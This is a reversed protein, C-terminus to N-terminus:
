QLLEDARALMWRPINIGLAKATRLNVVFEFKSAQEIPLDAPKAGNLIKFVYNAARQSLEGWDTSYSMLVGAEAFRRGDAIAPLRYKAVLGAIRDENVSALPFQNIAVADARLQAIREFAPALDNVQTVEVLHVHGARGGVSAGVGTLFESKGADTLKTDLVAITAATGVVEELMQFRKLDLPRSAIENGTLNGGPHALSAAFGKRVAESVAIFVIPITGTATRAAAVARTGGTVFIVDPKLAVLEVALADLRSADGRADRVDTRLNVGEVVGLRALENVFVDVIDPRAGGLYLVGLRHVKRPTQAQAFSPRTLAGSALAAVFSRRAVLGAFPSAQQLPKPM